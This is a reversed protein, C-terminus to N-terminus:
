KNEVMETIAKGLREIGVDMDEFSANSFNLRLCNKRGDVFFPAGPVFAVKMDIAIDFLEQTDCNEPLVVWIFLGGEPHNWKVSKPFHEEMRMLFHDRKKRYLDKISEIHEILIGRKFYESIIAQALTSTQVDSSQKGIKMKTILNENGIAFGVRLGPSVIKSFTGLYLVQETKDLNYIKPQDEGSYILDGYPNDEILILENDSLIEVLEKRRELPITVSSPNQFTPISYVIKPNHEKIIKKLESIIMGQDDSPVVVLKAEYTNFAQLAALYSPSEVAVVDGTNILAKAVLDIGQQAGSIVLLNEPGIEFGDKRLYKILEEVLPEYGETSGYQLITKGDRLIVDKAIEAVTDVDFTEASPLGGAFSIMGPQQSVTLLERIADGKIGQMRKAFRVEELVM